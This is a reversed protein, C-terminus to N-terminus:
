PGPFQVLSAGIGTNRQQSGVTSGRSILGTLEAPALQAQHRGNVLAADGLTVQRSLPYSTGGSQVGRRRRRGVCVHCTVIRYFVTRFSTSFMTYVIPNALSSVWGLWVLSSMGAAGLAQLCSDCVVSVLNVVFFPTWLVLFVGFIIGLVKSARREKSIITRRHKLNAAAASTCSLVDLSTQTAISNCSRRYTSMQVAHDAAESRSASASSMSMSADGTLGRRQMLLSWKVAALGREVAVKGQGSARSCPTEDCYSVRETSRGATGLATRISASWGALRNGVGSRSKDNRSDSATANLQCDRKPQTRLVDGSVQVSDEDSVEPTATGGNFRGCKTQRESRCFSSSETQPRTGIPRCQSDQGM